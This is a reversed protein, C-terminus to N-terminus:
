APRVIRVRSFRAFDRDFTAITAAHEVAVAGLHARAALDGAADGERCLAEFLDLHGQGPALVVHSPQGRVARAFGFVDDFGSPVRFIRRSTAMRVFGTWVVDPVSFSDTTSSFLHDCWRWVAPHHPHDARHLALVVNVDLLIM